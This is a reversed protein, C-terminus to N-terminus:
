GDGIQKLLAKIAAEECHYQHYVKSAAEVKEWTTTSPVELYDMLWMKLNKEVDEGRQVVEVLRQKLAEPDTERTVYHLMWVDVSRKTDPLEMEKSYRITQQSCIGALTVKLNVKL